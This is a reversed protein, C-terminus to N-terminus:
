GIAPVLNNPPRIFSHPHKGSHRPIDAAPQMRGEISKMNQRLEEQVLGNKRKQNLMFLLFSAHVDSLKVIASM